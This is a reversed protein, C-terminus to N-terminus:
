GTGGYVAVRHPFSTGTTSIEVQDTIPSIWKWWISHKAAQGAHPPENAEATASQNSRSGSTWFGQLIAAENFSDNTFSPPRFQSAEPAYHNITAANDAPNESDASSGTSVGKFNVNPNSFFPIKTGFQRAMITRYTTGDASFRFGNSHLFLGPSGQDNPTHHTGLNHGLEHAMTSTGVLSRRLVISFAIQDSPTSFISLQTGRGVGSSTPAEIILTVFDAGHETRLTHANDYFGDDPSKLRGLDASTTGAEHEMMAGVYVLRTRAHIESNEFALNTELVSQNILSRIGVEGGAGELAEPTYLIMHDLITLEQAKAIPCLFSVLGALLLHITCLRISQRLARIGSQYTLSNM